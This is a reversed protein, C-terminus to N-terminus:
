NPNASFPVTSGWKLETMVRKDQSLVFFRLNNLQAKGAVGEFNWVETFSVRPDVLVIMPANTGCEKYIRNLVYLLNNTATLGIPASDVKIAVGRPTKNIRAVTPEPNQAVSQNRRAHVTSSGLAVAGILLFVAASRTNITM